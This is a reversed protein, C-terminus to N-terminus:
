GDEAEGDLRLFILGVSRSATVRKGAHVEICGLFSCSRTPPSLRSLMLGKGEEDVVHKEDVRRFNGSQRRKQTYSIEMPTLSRARCHKAYTTSGHMRVTTLIGIWM